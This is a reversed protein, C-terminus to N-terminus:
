EHQQLKNAGFSATAVHIHLCTHDTAYLPFGAFCCISSWVQSNRVSKFLMRKTYIIYTVINLLVIDHWKIYYLYTHMFVHMCANRFTYLENYNLTTDAAYMFKIYIIDHLAFRTHSTYMYGCYFVITKWKHRKSTSATQEAALIFRPLRHANKQLIPWAIIDRRKTQKIRAAAVQNSRFIRNNSADSKWMSSLMDSPYRGFSIWLIVFLASCTPTRLM